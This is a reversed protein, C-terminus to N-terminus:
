FFAWVSFVVVIASGILIMAALDRGSIQYPDVLNAHKSRM